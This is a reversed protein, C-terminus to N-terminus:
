PRWAPWTSPQERRPSRRRSCGIFDACFASNKSAAEIAGLCAQGAVPNYGTPDFRGRCQNGSTSFGADACCPEIIPCYRGAFEAVTPGANASAVNSGNDRAVTWVGALSLVVIM